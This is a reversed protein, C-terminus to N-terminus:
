RARVERGPKRTTGHTGLEWESESAMDSVVAAAHILYDFDEPLEFSQPDRLDGYVIKVLLGELFHLDSTRRVLGYVEYGRALFYGCLNAGIFGNAGTIFVKEKLTPNAAMHNPNYNLGIVPM